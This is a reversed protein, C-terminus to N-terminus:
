TPFVNQPPPPVGYNAPDPANYNITWIDSWAPSSSQFNSTNSNDSTSLAGSRSEQVWYEQGTQDNKFALYKM